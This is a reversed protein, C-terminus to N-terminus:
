SLRYGVGRVNTIWRESRSVGLAGRLRSAHTDLRRSSVPICHGWLLLTLEHRAFVREPDRALTLLLEYELRRLAVRRGRVSVTRTATDIALAGVQVRTSSRAYATRGLVARLRARLELYSLPDALFDDAGAEFARLLDVERSSSGLVIVPLDAVWAASTLVSKPHGTRLRRAGRIELLLELADRLSELQGLIVLEPPSARALARAHELSRALRVPYGDATLQEVLQAGRLSDHEVVLIAALEVTCRSPSSNM